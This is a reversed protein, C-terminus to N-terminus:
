RREAGHGTAVLFLWQDLATQPEGSWEAVQATAQRLEADNPHARVLAKLLVLAGGPDGAGLERAIQARRHAEDEPALKLLRRGLDKAEYVDGCASELAVARAVLAVRDSSRAFPALVAAADCPLGHAELADAAAVLHRGREEVNETMRAAERSCDSARREDGAARLWRAAEALSEVRLSRDTEAAAAALFYRAALAPDELELSLRGLERARAPAWPRQGLAGLERHVEDFASARVPAGIPMARARELMIGLRLVSPDEGIAPGLAALAEDWRGIKALQRAHAIRLHRDEPQARTLVTLYAISYADVRSKGTIEAFERGSPFVVAIVAGMVFALGVLMRAAPFAARRASERPGRDLDSREAVSM